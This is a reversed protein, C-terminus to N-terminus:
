FLKSCQLTFTETRYGQVKLIYFVDDPSLGLDEKLSQFRDPWFDSGFLMAQPKLDLLKAVLESCYIADDGWSFQSDYPKGLFKKIQAEELEDSESITVISRITGIKELQSRSILEVGTYPYAHLWKDRYSIAIHAYQGNPELQLIRGNPKKIEIFAVQILAWSSNPLFFLFSPFLLFIFKM